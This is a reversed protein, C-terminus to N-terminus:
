RQSHKWSGDGWIKWNGLNKKGVSWEFWPVNTFCLLIYASPALQVNQLGGASKFKSQCQAGRRYDFEFVPLLSSVMTCCMSNWSSKPFLPCAMSCTAEILLAAAALPFCFSIILGGIFHRCTSATLRPTSQFMELSCLEVLGACHLNISFCLLLASHLRYTYSHTVFIVDREFSSLM